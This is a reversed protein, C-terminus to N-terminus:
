QRFWARRTLNEPEGTASITGTPTGGTITGAPTYSNMTLAPASNTGTPTYSNMSLAPASNTGAPTGATTSSTDLFAASGASAAITFTRAISQTTTAAFDATLIGTTSNLVGIPSVHNHLALPTGSFVPAAVSGTLTASAGSFVPAAVSGTLTAATGAFTLSGVGTGTFTPATPATPGANTDSTKLYCRTPSSGSLNPLTVSGLTGDAKLYNVTSGNYLHWGSGTPDVEFMQLMGSGADGPGWTWAVGSWILMHGYDFVNALFNSDTTGLDSPLTAQTCACVGASYGWFQSGSTGRNLYFVARDTEYFLTGVAYNNAPYSSLRAAHTGELVLGSAQSRPAGARLALLVALDATQAAPNISAPAQAMREFLGNPAQQRHVYAERAASILVAANVTGPNAGFQAPEPRKLAEVDATTTAADAKQGLGLVWRGWQIWEIPGQPGKGPDAFRPPQSLSLGM